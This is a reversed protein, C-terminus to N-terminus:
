EFKLQSLKNSAGTSGTGSGSWCVWIIIICIWRPCGSVWFYLMCKFFWPHLLVMFLTRDTACCWPHLCMHIPENLRNIGSITELSRSFLGVYDWINWYFLVLNKPNKLTKQNHLKTVLPFANMVWILVLDCAYFFQSAYCLLWTDLLFCCQPEVM